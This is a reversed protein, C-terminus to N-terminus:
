TTKVGQMKEKLNITLLRMIAILSRFMGTIKSINLHPLHMLAMRPRLYFQIYAQRQMMKVESAKRGKPTYIPEIDTLGISQNYRVYDNEHALSIEGLGQLEKYLPTGPYPIM